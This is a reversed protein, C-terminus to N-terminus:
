SYPEVKEALIIHKHVLVDRGLHVAALADERAIRYLNHVATDLSTNSFHSFLEMLEAHPRLEETEAPSPSELPSSTESMEQIATTDMTTPAPAMVKPAATHVVNFEQM